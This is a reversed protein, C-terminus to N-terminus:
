DASLVQTMYRNYAAEVESESPRRGYERELAMEIEVRDAPPVQAYPVALSVNRQGGIDGIGGAEFLMMEETRQGWIRGPQSIVVPLLLRNIMSQVEMQNPVRRHEEQFAAMERALSNNFRAERAAAETRRSGSLGTQTIGVAELAGRAQSFASTLSAGQEMAERQDSLASQRWGRVTQWDSNSLRDRFQFLDTQAFSAPDTAYMTQLEYLVVDDTQPEGRAQVQDHWSWLTNMGNIGLTQQMEIPLGSPPRGPNELVWSEAVRQVEERQMRMMRNQAEINRIIQDRTADRLRPDSIGQLQQQIHQLGSPTYNPPVHDGVAGPSPRRVGLLRSASYSAVSVSDSQNGGLVLINGNEDYGSFFGVHGQWGDPDGRSFVVVDGVRPEDVPTGFNLFSRANLRGTGEIGEVGLVANVFAACWATQRPDIEIGAFTRIFESIERTHTREGMGVMARGADIYSFNGRANPRLDAGGRTQGPVYPAIGSIEAGRAVLDPDPVGAGRLQGELDDAGPAETAESPAGFLIENARASAQADLVPGSLARELDFQHAGTLSDRMGEVYTQAAIPDDQAMRLAVNKHVGSIFERERAALADADWGALAGMQRLEAQGMAINRAVEQPDNYAVLADNAFTDIRQTSADRFWSRRENAQHVIARDLTSNIRAQSARGYMQAAGGALTGAIRQREQEARQEFVARGEVANRGELTMYGGEGYQAERLWAAFQNEAEQARARDELERLREMAEAAQGLGQAVGGMGRGIAAGMDDASARVTLSQQNVPRTQVNQTYTPVLAM